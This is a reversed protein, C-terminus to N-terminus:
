GILAAADFARPVDKVMAISFAMALAVLGDIRGRSKAKDLKRGGAPDRTIVANVANWQLVPHNGHRVRRQIILRELVDVAPSMDKFGQGHPILKVTCGIADLERKLDNMRWRDFALTQIQFQGNLEAIKLAIIKPDTAEGIPTLKGLKIWEGYPARDESEREKIKGPIWFHPQVHFIGEMDQCILVLASMDRTAGLDLAAYVKSHRPLKPVGGCAKWTSQKLFPEHVTVRQNLIL